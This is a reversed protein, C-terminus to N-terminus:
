RIGRHLGRSHDGIDGLDAEEGGRGVVAFGFLRLLLGGRFAFALAILLIWQALLVIGTSTGAILPFKGSDRQGETKGQVSEFECMFDEGLLAEAQALEEASPPERELASLM